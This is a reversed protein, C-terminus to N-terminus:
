ADVMMYGTIGTEWTAGDCKHEIEGVMFSVKSADGISNPIETVKFTQGFQVGAFGDCTLNLDITYRISIGKGSLSSMVYERLIKKFDTVQNPDYANGISNAKEGVRGIYDVAPPPDKPQCGAFLNKAMGSPYKGSNASFAIAAMDPDMASSMSLSKVPSTLGRASIVTGGSKKIDFMKNTILMEKDDGPVLICDILGGSLNSIEGFLKSLFAGATYSGPDKDSQKDLLSREIELLMETSIWLQSIVGPSGTLNSYNNKNEATSTSYQAQQGSFLMRAPDASRIDIPHYKDSAFKYSYGGGVNKNIFDIVLSMRVLTQYQSTDSFIGSEM